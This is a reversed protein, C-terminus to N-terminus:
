RGPPGGPQPRANVGKQQKQKMQNKLQSKMQEKMINVGAPVDSSATETSRRTDCGSAACGLLLLQSCLMMRTLAGRRMVAIRDKM